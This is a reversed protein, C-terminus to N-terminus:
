IQRCIFHTNGFWDMNERNGRLGSIMIKEAGSKTVGNDGRKRERTKRPNANGNGTPNSEGNINDEDMLTHSEMSIMGLKETYLVSQWNGNWNKKTVELTM